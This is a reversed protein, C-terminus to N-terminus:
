LAPVPLRADTKELAPVPERAVVMLSVYYLQKLHIGPKKRGHKRAGLMIAICSTMIYM